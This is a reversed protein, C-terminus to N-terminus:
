LIGVGQIGKILKKRGLDGKRTKLRPIKEYDRRGKPNEVQGRM